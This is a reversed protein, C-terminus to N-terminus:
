RQQALLRRTFAGKTGNSCTSQSITRLLTGTAYDYYRLTCNFSADEVVLLFESGDEKVFAGFPEYDNLTLISSSLTGTVRNMRKFDLNITFDTEVRVIGILLEPATPNWLIILGSAQAGTAPITSGLASDSGGVRPSRLYVQHVNTSVQNGIAISDKDHSIGYVSLFSTSTTLYTPSGGGPAAWSTGFVAMASCAVDWATCRSIERGDHEVVVYDNMGMSVSSLLTQDTVSDRQTVLDGSSSLWVRNGCLPANNDRAAYRLAEYANALPASDPMNPTRAVNRAGQAAGALVRTRLQAATLQSNFGKVLGAIGTVYAASMSTGSYYPGFGLAGYTTVSDGPAFVDVRPGFNSSDWRVHPSRDSAGVILVHNPFSDKLAAYGGFFADRKYNGAAFIMLPLKGNREARRLQVMMPALTSWVKATDNPTGTPIYTGFWPIRFSYSLNVITAGAAGLKRIETGLTRTSPTHTKSEVLRLGATWMVGTMGASDNGSAAIINSMETGHRIPESSYGGLVGSGSLINSSLETADFAHDLVGIQVTAGGTTCGWALPAAIAEPAWNDGTANDPNVDWDSKDWANGDDPRLHQPRTGRWQKAALEVVPQTMLIAIASDLEVGAGSDAIAIIYFGDGTEDPDGGIVLGNVLDIAAQRQAQTSVETFIVDIVGKTYGDAGISSDALVWDPVSDPPLAPVPGGSSHATRLVLAPKMEHERSRFAARGSLNENAKKLIWGYNNSTGAVFARVDATVDFELWGSEGGELLVTATYPTAWPLPSAGMSWAATTCDKTENSTDSDIACNWTAGTETWQQTMRLLNVGSGSPGWSGVVSKIRIKLIAVVLSDDGVVSDIAAQSFGVLAREPSNWVMISDITGYNHNPSNERIYTDQSARLTDHNVTITRLPRGQDSRQQPETMDRCGISAVGLSIVCMALSIPM